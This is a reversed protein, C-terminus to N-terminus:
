RRSKRDDIVAADAANRVVAVTVDITVDGRSALATLKGEERDKKLLSGLFVDSLMM